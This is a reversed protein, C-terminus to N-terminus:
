PLPLRDFLHQEARVRHMLLPLQLLNLAVLSTWAAGALPLAIAELAVGLYNPHRLFRYPGSTILAQKSSVVGRANWSIGLTRQSCLRLGQGCLWLIVAVLLLPGSAERGRWWAEAVPATLLLVQLLVMALFWPRAEALWMEGGAAATRSRMQQLNRRSLRLELLRQAATLATLVLLWPPM